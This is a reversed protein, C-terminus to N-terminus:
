NVGEASVHAALGAPWYEEIIHVAYRAKDQHEFAHDYDNADRFLESCWPCYFPTGPEYAPGPRQQVM